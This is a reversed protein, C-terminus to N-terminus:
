FAISVGALLYTRDADPAVIAQVFVPLSYKETEVLCASAKLSIDTVAAGSSYAGEWPTIGVSPTLTIGSKLEVPLSFNIYTSYYNDGDADADDDAGAFMTSWSMALPVKGELAYSLTAEFYHAHEYHGYPQDIGSWWYDTLTVAFQGLSYSLNIDFEKAGGDTWKTLSQSGWANLSLNGYSVTLSPQVSAGSMQDVGRWIYDSVIDVQGSVDFKQEEQQAAANAACMTLACAAM